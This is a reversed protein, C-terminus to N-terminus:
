TVSGSSSSYMKGMYASITFLTLATVTRTTTTILATVCHSHHQLCPSLSLTPLSSVSCTRSGPRILALLKAIPCDDTVQHGQHQAFLLHEIVLQHTAAAAETRGVYLGNVLQTVKSLNSLSQAEDGEARCITFCVEGTPSNFPNFSMFCSAILLTQPCRTFSGM